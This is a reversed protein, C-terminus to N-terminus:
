DGNPNVKEGKIYGLVRSSDQVIQSPNYGVTPALGGLVLFITLIVIGFVVVKRQAPHKAGFEAWQRGMESFVSKISEAGLKYYLM